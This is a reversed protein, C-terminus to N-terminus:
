KAIDMYIAARIAHLHTHTVNKLKTPCYHNTIIFFQPNADRLYNNVQHIEDHTLKFPKKIPYKCYIIWNEDDLMSQLRKRTAEDNSNVLDREMSEKEENYEAIYDHEDHIMLYTHARILYDYFRIKEASNDLQTLSSDVEDDTMAKPKEEEPRRQEAKNKRNIFLDRLSYGTISTILAIWQLIKKITKNGELETQSKKTESPVITKTPPKFLLSNRKNCDKISAYKTCNACTFFGNEICCPKVMCQKFLVASKMSNSRCGECRSSMFAACDKCHLGCYAILQENNNMQESQYM